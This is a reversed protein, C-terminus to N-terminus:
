LLHPPQLCRPCSSGKWILGLELWHWVLRRLVLYRRWWLAGNQSPSLLSHTQIFRSFVSGTRAWGTAWKTGETRLGGLGGAWGIIGSFRYLQYVLKVCTDRVALCLILYMSGPSCILIETWQFPVKCSVKVTAPKWRQSSTCTRLTRIILLM